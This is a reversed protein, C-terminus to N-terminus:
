KKKKGAAKGKKAGGGKKKGGSAEENAVVWAPLLGARQEKSPAYSKLKRRFTFMTPAGEGLGPAVHQWGQKLWAGRIESVSRETISESHLSSNLPRHLFLFFQLVVLFFSFPFFLMGSIEVSRIEVEWCKTM